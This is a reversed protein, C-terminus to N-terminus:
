KDGTESAVFEPDSIGLKVELDHANNIFVSSFANGALTDTTHLLPFFFNSPFVM